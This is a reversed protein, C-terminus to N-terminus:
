GPWWLNSKARSVPVRTLAEACPSKDRGTLPRPRPTQTLPGRVAQGVRTGVTAAVERAVWM